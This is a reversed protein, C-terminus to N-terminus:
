GLMCQWQQLACAPVLHTHARRTVGTGVTLHRGGTSDDIVDIAVAALISNHALSTCATARYTM